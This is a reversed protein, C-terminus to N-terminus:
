GGTHSMFRIIKEPMERFEHRQPKRAIAELVAGRLADDSAGNRLLERFEYRHENGLCLYM